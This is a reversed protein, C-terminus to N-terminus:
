GNPAALSRREESKVSKVVGLYIRIKISFHSVKIDFIVEVM